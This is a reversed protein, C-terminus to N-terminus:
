VRVKRVRAQPAGLLEGMAEADVPRGFLFGQAQECGLGRLFHKQGENEVGEAVVALGLTHAM